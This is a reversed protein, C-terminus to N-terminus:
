TGTRTMPRTLTPCLGRRSGWAGSSQPAPCERPELVPPSGAEPLPPRAEGLLRGTGRRAVAGERARGPSVGTEPSLFLEMGQVNEWPVELTVVAVGMQLQFSSPLQIIVRLYGYYGM